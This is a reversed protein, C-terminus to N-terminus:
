ELGTSGTQLLYSQTLSKPTYWRSMNASGAGHVEVSATKKVGLVFDFSNLFNLDSRQGIGNRACLHHQLAAWVMGIRFKPGAAIPGLRAIAEDYNGTLALSLALNLSLVPDGPALELGRRYRAQAEGHQGMLDDAVGILQLLKPDNPTDEFAIALPKGALEPRATKLYAKAIGRLAEPDRAQRDLASNYAIIAENVQGMEILTNGIAVFPAAADTQLSAARRYLQLANALDGGARAAAGIRMLTPYDLPSSGGDRGNIALPDIHWPVDECAVLVACSLAVFISSAVKLVNM